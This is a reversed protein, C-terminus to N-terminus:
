NLERQTRKKISKDKFGAMLIAPINEKFYLFLASM